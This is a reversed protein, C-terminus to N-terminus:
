RNRAILVLCVLLLVWAMVAAILRGLTLIKGYLLVIAVSSVVFGIIPHAKKMPTGGKHHIPTNHTDFAGKHLPCSEGRRCSEGWRPSIDCPTHCLLPLLETFRHPISLVIGGDKAKPM